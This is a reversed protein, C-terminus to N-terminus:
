HGSETFRMGRINLAVMGTSATVSIVNPRKAHKKKLVSIIAKLLLSKGTGVLVTAGGDVWDKHPSSFIHKLMGASGTFFVNKGEKVVM